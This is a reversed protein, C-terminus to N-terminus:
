YKFTLGPAYWLHSCKLNAGSLYTGANSAFMLCHRFPIGPVFVRAKYSWEYIMATFLKIVNPAPRSPGVEDAADLGVDLHHRM